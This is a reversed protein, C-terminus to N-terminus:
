GIQRCGEGPTGARRRHKGGHSEASDARRAARASRLGTRNPRRKPIRSVLAASAAVLVVALAVQAAVLWHHLRGDLRSGATRRSADLITGALAAQTVRLIPWLTATLAVAAALALTAVQVPWDLEVHPLDKAVQPDLALLAPVMVHALWLGSGGGIAALLLGDIAQLRIM